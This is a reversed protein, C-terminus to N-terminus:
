ESPLRGFYVNIVALLICLSGLILRFVTPRFGMLKIVEMELPIVFLPVANNLSRDPKEQIYIWLEGTIEESVAQVKWERQIHGAPDWQSFIIEGPEIIAGRLSLKTIVSISCVSDLEESNYNESGNKVLTVNATKNFDIKQPYVLSWSGASFGSSKLCTRENIFSIEPDVSFTEMRNKIPMLEWVLVPVIAGLILFTLLRKTSFM